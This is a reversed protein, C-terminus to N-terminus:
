IHRQQYNQKEGDRTGANQKRWVRTVQRYPKPKKKTRRRTWHGDKFERDLEGLCRTETASALGFKSTIMKAM